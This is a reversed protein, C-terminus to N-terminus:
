LSVSMFGLRIDFAWSCGKATDTAECAQELCTKSSPVRLVLIADLGDDTMSDFAKLYLTVVTAWSTIGSEDSGISWLQRPGPYISHRPCDSVPHCEKLAIEGDLLKQAALLSM